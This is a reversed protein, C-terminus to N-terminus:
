SKEGGSKKVQLKEAARARHVGVIMQHVNVISTDGKESIHLHCQYFSAKAFCLVM